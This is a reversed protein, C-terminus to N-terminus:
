RSIVKVLPAEKSEGANETHLPRVWVGNPTKAWGPHSAETAAVMAQGRVLSKIVEFPVDQFAAFRQQVKRYDKENMMQFVAVLSALGLIAPPIGDLTQATYLFSILRHRALRNMRQVYDLFETLGHYNCLEELVYWLHLDGGQSLANMTLLIIRSRENAGQWMGQMDFALLRGPRPHDEVGEHDSLDRSARHLRGLVRDKVDSRLEKTKQIENVLKALTLAGGYQEAVQELFVPYLPERQGQGPLSLLQRLGFSGLGPVKNVMAEVQMGCDVILPEYIQRAQKLNARPTLVMVNRLAIEPLNDLVTGFHRRLYAAQVPDKNKRMAALIEPFLHGTNDGWFYAVCSPETKERPLLNGDDDEYLPADHCSLTPVEVLSGTILASALHSQGSKRNGILTVVQPTMIDVAVPIV